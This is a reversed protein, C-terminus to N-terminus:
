PANYRWRVDQFCLVEWIQLALYRSRRSVRCASLQFGALGGSGLSWKCTPDLRYGPAASDLWNLQITSKWPTSISHVFSTSKAGPTNLTRGTEVSTAHRLYIGASLAPRNPPRSIADTHGGQAGKPMM